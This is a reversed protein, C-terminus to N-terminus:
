GDVDALGTAREDPVLKHIRIPHETGLDVETESPPKQSKTHVYHVVGIIVAFILLPVLFVSVMMGLLNSALGATLLIVLAAAVPKRM